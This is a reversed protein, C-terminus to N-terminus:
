ANAGGARALLRTSYFDSAAVSPLHDLYSALARQNVNQPEVQFQKIIDRAERESALQSEFVERVLEQTVGGDLRKPEWTLRDHLERFGRVLWGVRGLTLEHTWAPLGPPMPVTVSILGARWLWANLMVWIGPSKDTPLPPAFPRLALVKGSHASTVEAGLRSAAYHFVDTCSLLVPINVRQVSSLFGLIDEMGTRVSKACAGDIVLLGVNLLVCLAILADPAKEGAVKRLIPKLDSPDKLEAVLKERFQRYLGKPTGCQPWQLVIVPFYWLVPFEAGPRVVRFPAGFLERLRQIYATRGMQSCGTLVFNPGKLTELSERAPSQGRGHLRHFFSGFFRRYRPNDLGRARMCKVFTCLLNVSFRTIEETALYGKEFDAMASIKVEPSARWLDPDAPVLRNRLRGKLAEKDPAEVFEPLQSTENCYSAMSGIPESTRDRIVIPWQSIAAPEVIDDCRHAVPVLERATAVAVLPACSRMAHTDLQEDVIVDSECTPRGELNDNM